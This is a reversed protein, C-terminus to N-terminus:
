AASANSEAGVAREAVGDTSRAGTRLVTSDSLREADRPVESGPTTGADSRSPHGRIPGTTSNM